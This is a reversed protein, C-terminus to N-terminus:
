QEILELSGEKNLRRYYCSTYPDGNPKHAHCAGKGEAQVMFLLSNQECNTRIEMIKLLDGSTAGKKWLENRSRSWFTAYGSELSAAFAAHNVFAVILVAKSQADQVVVPVLTQGDPGFDLQFELTYEKAM